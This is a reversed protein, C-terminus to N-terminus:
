SHKALYEIAAQLRAPDDKMHGLAHNCNNCLMARIKGTEHCHDVHLRSCNRKGSPPQGCIACLGGQAEIMADADARSLGHVSKFMSAQVKEPNAKNWQRAKEVERKRVEPNRRWRKKRQNLAARGEPTSRLAKQYVKQYTLRAERKEPTETTARRKRAERYEPRSRYEKQYALRAKREEPTENKRATM